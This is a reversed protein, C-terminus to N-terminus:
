IKFKRKYNFLIKTKTIKRKIQFKKKDQLSNKFNNLKSKKKKSVPKFKLLITNFLKFM